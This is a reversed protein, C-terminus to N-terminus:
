EVTFTFIYEDSQYVSGNGNFSRMDVLLDWVGAGEEEPVTV